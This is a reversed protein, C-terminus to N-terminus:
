IQQLDFICPAITIIELVKYVMGFGGEGVKYALSFNETATLITSLPFFKVDITNTGLEDVEEGEPFTPLPFNINSDFM